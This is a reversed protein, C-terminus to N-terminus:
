KIAKVAMILAKEILAERASHGADVEILRANSIIKKLKRADDIPCLHDYIGHVITTSIGKIKRASIYFQDEPIFFNNLAYHLEILIKNSSDIYGEMISEITKQDILKRSLSLGYASWIKSLEYSRKDGKKIEDFFYQAVNDKSSEPVNNLVKEWRSSFQSPLQGKLYIDVCSKTASFVGRLILSCVRGINESAYLVALTSGWSGGFIHVKPINMLDLVLNIDSILDETTNNILSGVPLSKGCGRQDIFIVFHKQPDFFRKDSESYGLGPGGHLFLIPIGAKNGYTEFHISHGDVNINAV